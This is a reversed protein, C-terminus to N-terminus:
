ILLNYSRWFEQIMPINEPKISKSSIEHLKELITRETIQSSRGQERIVKLKLNVYDNPLINNQECLDKEAQNLIEYYQAAKLTQNTIGNNGGRNQRKKLSSHKEIIMADSIALFERPNKFFEDTETYLLQRQQQQNMQGGGGNM